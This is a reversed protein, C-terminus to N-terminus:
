RVDLSIFFCFGGTGTGGFGDGKDFTGCGELDSTDFSNGGLDAAAEMLSQACKEGFLSACTENTQNSYGEVVGRGYGIQLAEFYLTSNISELFPQLGEYADELIALQFETNIVHLNESSNATPDGLDYIRNPVPVDTINVTWLWTQENNFDNRTFRLSSTANPTRGATAYIEKATDDGSGPALVGSISATYVTQLLSFIWATLLVSSTIRSKMM